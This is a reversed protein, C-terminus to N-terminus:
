TRGEEDEAPTAALARKHEEYPRLPEGLAEKVAVIADQVDTESGYQAGGCASCDHTTEYVHEVGPLDTCPDFHLDRNHPGEHGKGNLADVNADYARVLTTAAERLARLTEASEARVAAEFADLAARKGPSTGPWTNLLAERAEDVTTVRSTM